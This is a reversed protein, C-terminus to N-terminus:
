LIQDAFLAWAKSTVILTYLCEDKHHLIDNGHIKDAKPSFHIQFYVCNKPLFQYGHCHDFIVM